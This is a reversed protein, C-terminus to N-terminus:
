RVTEKVAEASVDDLAEAIQQNHRVNHLPIYLLWHYANLMNFVPFPHEASHTKIPRDVEEVFKRTRARVERYRSVTEYRTWHHHPELSAPAVAKRSRDPLVRGLFTTKRAHQEVWDPNPPAALAQEIMGLMAAEGLVLHEATQLVSWRGPAAQCTWQADTLESTLKLFQDESDHLLRLVDAREEATLGPPPTNM